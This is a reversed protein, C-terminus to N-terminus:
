RRDPAMFFVASLFESPTGLLLIPLSARFTPAFSSTQWPRPTTPTKARQKWCSSNPRTSNVRTYDAFPKALLSRPPPLRASNRLSTTPKKTSKTEARDFYLKSSGVIRLELRWIKLGVMYLNVWAEALQAIAADEAWSKLGALQQRALDPRDMKLLIQIM